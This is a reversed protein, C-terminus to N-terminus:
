KEFADDLNNAKMNTELPNEGKFYGLIKIGKARLTKSIQNATNKIEPLKKSKFYKQIRSEKKGKNNLESMKNSIADKEEQTLSSIDVNALRDKLEENSKSELINIVARSYTPVIKKRASSNNEVKEEDEKNNEAISKMNIREAWSKIQNRIRSLFNNGTFLRNFGSKIKNYINRFIRKKETPENKNPQIEEYLDDEELDFEIEIEDDLDEAVEGNGEIENDLEIAQGEDVKIEDGLEIAQGEDEGTRDFEENSIKNEEVVETNYAKDNHPDYDKDYEDIWPNFYWGYINKGFGENEYKQLVPDKKM